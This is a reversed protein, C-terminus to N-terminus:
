IFSISQRISLIHFLSFSLFFSVLCTAHVLFLNIFANSAQFCQPYFHCGAGRSSQRTVDIWHAKAYPPKAQPCNSLSTGSHFQTLRSAHLWSGSGMGWNWLTGMIRCELISNLDLHTYHFFEFILIQKWHKICQNSIHNSPHVCKNLSM